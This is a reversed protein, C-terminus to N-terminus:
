FVSPNLCAHCAEHRINLATAIRAPMLTPPIHRQGMRELKPDFEPDLRCGHVYNGTLGIEPLAQTACGSKRIDIGTVLEHEADKTPPTQIGPCDCDWLTRRRFESESINREPFEWERGDKRQFELEPVSYFECEAANARRFEFQPDGNGFHLGREPVKSETSKTRPESKLIHTGRENCQWEKNGALENGANFKRNESEFAQVASDPGCGCEATNRRAPSRIATGNNHNGGCNKFHDLETSHRDCTLLDGTNECQCCTAMGSTILMAMDAKSCNSRFDNKCGVHTDKTGSDKTQGQYSERYLSPGTRLAVLGAIEEQWKM